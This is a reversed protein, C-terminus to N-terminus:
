SGGSGFFAGIRAMIEPKRNTGGAVLVHNAGPVTVLQFNTKGREQFRAELLRASAIPVSRDQEGFVMPISLSLYIPAPDLDIVSSWYRYPYGLARKTTSTPDTEIEAFARAFANNGQQTDIMEGLRRFSAGGSGIIALRRVQPNAQALSAAIGGGESVGLVGAIEGHRRIVEHLAAGNQERMAEFYYSDAFAQSCSLGMDNRSVGAKQAAYITWSGTAAQFYPRMFYALSACGSGSVFFVARRPEPGVDISYLDIQAGSAARLTEIKPPNTAADSLFTAYTSACGSVALAVLVASLGALRARVFPFLRNTM